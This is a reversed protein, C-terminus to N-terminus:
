ADACACWLSGGADVFGNNVRLALGALHQNVILYEDDTALLDISYIAFHNFLHYITFSLITFPKIFFLIYLAGRMSTSCILKVPINISLGTIGTGGWGAGAFTGTM